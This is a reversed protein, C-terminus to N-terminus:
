ESFDMLSTRDTKKTEKKEEKINLLKSIAKKGYFHNYLSSLNRARHIACVAGNFSGTPGYKMCYLENTNFSERRYKGYRVIDSTKFLICTYNKKKMYTNITIKAGNDLMKKLVELKKKSEYNM